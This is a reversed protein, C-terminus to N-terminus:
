FGVSLGPSQADRSIATQIHPAVKEDDSWMTYTLREQSGGEVAEFHVTLAEVYEDSTEDHLWVRIGDVGSSDFDLIRIHIDADCSWRICFLHFLIQLRQLGAREAVILHRADPSDAVVDVPSRLLRPHLSQQSKVVRRKEAITM